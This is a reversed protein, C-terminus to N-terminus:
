LFPNNLKNAIAFPNSGARFGNTQENTPNFGNLGCEITSDVNNIKSEFGNHQQQQQIPTFMSNTPTFLQEPSLNVWGKQTAQQPQVQHQQHLQFPNSPPKFPNPHPPQLLQQQAVGSLYLM